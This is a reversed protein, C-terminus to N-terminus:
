PRDFRNADVIVPDIRFVNADSSDVTIRVWHVDQDGFCEVRTFDELRRPEDAKTTPGFLPKDVRFFHSDGHALLVPAGFARVKSEIAALLTNFAIRAPDTEPLEIGPDAQLALFVGAAQKKIALEFTSNLWALVARQRRAVEDLREQLPAEPLEGIGSWPDTNDNSGVVHLTAFVVDGLVFRINEVFESYKSDDSQPEVALKRGGTTFGPDPFFLKRLAELREVPNYRGAAERHCDTWENDGPTFVFPASFRQFDAFRKEFTEDDCPTSGTKIDGVHVVFANDERNVSEVLNPLKAEVEAGYPVDGILAFQLTQGPPEPKDGDAQAISTAQLLAFVVLMVLQKM